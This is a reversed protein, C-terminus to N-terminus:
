EALFGEVEGLPTCHGGDSNRGCVIARDKNLAIVRSRSNGEARVVFSGVLKVEDAEARIVACVDQGSQGTVGTGCLIAEGELSAGLTSLSIPGEGAGEFTKISGPATLVGADPRLVM